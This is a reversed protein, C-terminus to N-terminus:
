SVTGTGRLHEGAKKLNLLHEVRSQTFFMEGDERTVFYLDETEEADLVALIMEESPNAIPGEPLGKNRYTNYPDSTRIDTETIEGHGAPLIYAVTAQSELYPVTESELRNLYVGAAKKPNKGSEKQLISALTIVEDLDYDSDSIKKMTEDTLVKEEFRSLIRRVVAVASEGEYMEYTDPYLYGELRYNREPLHAAFAFESFDYNQLVNELEERELYELSDCLTTVLDEQTYGEKITFTVKDKKAPDRKLARILQNYDSKCNLTFEGEFFDGSKKLKSYLFFVNPHDIIQAQKLAKAVAKVSTQGEEIMVTIEKDPRVLGLVENGIHCIWCSLLVAAILIAGYYGLARAYKQWVEKTFVKGETNKEQAKPTEAKAPETKVAESKVSETQMVRTQELEAKAKPQNAIRIAPQEAKASPYSGAPNIRKPRSAGDAGPYSGTINRKKDAM